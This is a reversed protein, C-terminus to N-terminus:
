RFNKVLMIDAARPKAKVYYICRQDPAVVFAPYDPIAPADLRGVTVTASRTFDFFQVLAGSPALSPLPPVDETEQTAFYIRDPFLTWYGWFGASPGNVVFSEKGGAVPVRWIGRIRPGKVYYIFKGDPSEVPAFGGDRTVRLATGGEAPVKWVEHRGTRNSSFYVWKEDGSWSPVVNESLDQTLPSPEGSGEAGVSFIRYRGAVSADFAVRKGTPSWRPAGAPSGPISAIRLANQGDIRSVWIDQNGSRRSASVLYRGDRSV